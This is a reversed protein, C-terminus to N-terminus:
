SPGGARRERVCALVFAAADFEARRLRTREAAEEDEGWQERNWAEEVEGADWAHDPAITGDALALAVLVSGTLTTAVSLAALALPDPEGDLRAKVAALSAPPQPDVRLGMTPTFRPGLREAAWDRVPRWLREQREQLAPEAALFLTLDGAAYDAISRRVEAPRDAVGDLAVNVLRTLPMTSPLITEGQRQWEDRIAEGLRRDDVRLPRKAPTRIPRGDLRIEWGGPCAALTAVAYFRRPGSSTAPQAFSPRPDTM